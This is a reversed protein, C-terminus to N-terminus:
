RPNLPGGGNVADPAIGNDSKGLPQFCPVARPPKGLIIGSTNQIRVDIFRRTFNAIFHARTGIGLCM